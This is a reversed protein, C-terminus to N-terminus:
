PVYVKLVLCLCDEDPLLGSDPISWPSPGSLRRLLLATYRGPTLLAGGRGPDLDQQKKTSKPHAHASRRELSLLILAETNESVGQMMLTWAGFYFTSVM